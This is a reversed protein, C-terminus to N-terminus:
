LRKTGELFGTSGSEIPRLQYGMRVFFSTAEVSYPDIESTKIIGACHAEAKKEIHTLLKKGYGKRKESQATHIEKLFSYLLTKAWSVLKGNAFLKFVIEDDEESEEQTELIEENTSNNKQIETM